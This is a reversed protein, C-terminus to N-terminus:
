GRKKQVSQCQFHCRIVIDGTAETLLDYKQPYKYHKKKSFAGRAKM